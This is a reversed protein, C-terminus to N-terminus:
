KFQVTLITGSFRIPSTLHALCPCHDAKEKIWAGRIHKIRRGLEPWQVINASHDPNSRNGARRPDAAAVFGKRPDWLAARAGADAALQSGSAVAVVPM